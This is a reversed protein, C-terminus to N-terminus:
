LPQLSIARRTPRLEVDPHLAILRLARPMESGGPGILTAWLAPAGPFACHLLGPASAMLPLESLPITRLRRTASVSLRLFMRAQFDRQRSMNWASLLVTLALAQRSHDLAAPPHGRQERAEAINDLDLMFLSRPFAAMSELTIGSLERLKKASGAPLGLCDNGQRACARLHILFLLNLEQIEELEDSAPPEYSM